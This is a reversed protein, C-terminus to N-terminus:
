WLDESFLQESYSDKSIIQNCAIAEKKAKVRDLFEDKNNIFGQELIEYDIGNKYGLEGLIWFANWHRHVPIIVEKEQRKDFIKVAAETIM